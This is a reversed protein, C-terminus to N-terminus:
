HITYGQAFQTFSEIHDNPFRICFRSGGYSPNYDFDVSWLAPIDDRFVVYEDLVARLFAMSAEDRRLMVYGLRDRHGVTTSRNPTGQCSFYTTMGKKWLAEILDVVELDIHASSGDPLEVDLVAHRPVM